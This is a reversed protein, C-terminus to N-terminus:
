KKVPDVAVSDLIINPKGTKPFDLIAQSEGLKFVQSTGRLKLIGTSIDFKDGDIEVIAKGFFMNYSLKVIHTEEDIDIKWERKSLM